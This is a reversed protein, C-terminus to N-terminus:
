EFTETFRSGHAGISPKRQMGSAGAQASSGLAEDATTANSAHHHLSAEPALWIREGPVHPPDSSPSSTGSRSKKALGKDMSTSSQSRRKTQALFPPNPVTLGQEATPSSTESVNPVSSRKWESARSTYAWSEGTLAPQKAPSRANSSTEAAGGRRFFRGAKPSSPTKRLSLDQSPQGTSSKTRSSKSSTSVSRKVSSPSPSRRSHPTPTKLRVVDSLKRGFSTGTASGSGEASARTTPFQNTALEKDGALVPSTQTTVIAPVAPVAAASMSEPEAFGVTNKKGDSFPNTSTSSTGATDPSRFPDTQDSDRRLISTAGVRPTSQDVPEDEHQTSTGPMAATPMATGATEATQMSQTDTEEATTYRSRSTATTYQSRQSMNRDLFGASAIGAGAGAGASATAMEASPTSSDGTIGANSPDAAPKLAPAPKVESLIGDADQSTGSEGIVSLINPDDKNRKVGPRVHGSSSRPAAEVDYHEKDSFDQGSDYEDAHDDRAPRDSVLAGAAELDRTLATPSLPPQEMESGPIRWVREAIERNRHKISAKRTPISTRPSSGPSTAQGSSDSPLQEHYRRDPSSATDGFVKNEQAVARAIHKSYRQERKQRLTSGRRLVKSTVSDSRTLRKEEKARAKEEDEIVLTVNRLTSQRAKRRRRRRKVYWVALGLGLALLVIPILFLLWLYNPSDNGTSSTNGNGTQSGTENGPFLPPSSTETSSM